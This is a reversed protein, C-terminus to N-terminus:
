DAVNKYRSKRNFKKMRQVATDIGNRWEGNSVLQDVNPTLISKLLVTDKKERAESYQDILFHIAKRQQDSPEDQQGYLFIGAMNLLFFVIFHKMGAIKSHNDALQNEFLFFNLSCIRRDKRRSVLGPLKKQGALYFFKGRM